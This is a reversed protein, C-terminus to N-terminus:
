ADEREVPVWLEIEGTGSAGDFREDYVEFDPTQASRRGSRPLWESFIADWTAGLTAAGGRHVFVAYHAEPIRVRGIEPALGDFREVEVGCLYEVTEAEPGGGCIVGYRTEGVQGPLQGLTALQAWQAAIGHAADAFAHTRRVGAVLMARHDAWRVPEIPTM